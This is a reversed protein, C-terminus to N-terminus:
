ETLARLTTQQEFQRVKSRFRIACAATVVVFLGLNVFQWTDPERRLNYLASSLVFGQAVGGFWDGITLEVHYANKLYSWGAM